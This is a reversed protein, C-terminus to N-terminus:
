ANNLEDEFEQEGDFHFLFVSREGLYKAFDEETMEAIQACYGLSVGMTTYYAVAVSRKAFMSVQREDMRTDYLVAEPVNVAVNYM